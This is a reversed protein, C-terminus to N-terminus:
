PPEEGPAERRCMPADYSCYLYIFTYMKKNNIEGGGMWLM